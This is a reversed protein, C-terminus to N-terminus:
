QQDAGGLLHFASFGEFQEVLIPASITEIRLHGRLDHVHVSGSEIRITMESEAPVTILLQNDVSEYGNSTIQLRSEDSEIRIGFPEM